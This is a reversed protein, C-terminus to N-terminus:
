ASPPIGPYWVTGNWHFTFNGVPDIVIFQGATWTTQPAAVYGLGALKGANTVDQATITPEAPFVDGPSAESKLPPATDTWGGNVHDAYLRPRASQEAATGAGALLHPPDPSFTLAM